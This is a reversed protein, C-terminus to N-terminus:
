LRTASREEALRHLYRVFFFLPVAFVATYLALPFDFRLLVRASGPIGHIAFRFLLLILRCLLTTIYTGLLCVWWSPQLLNHAVLAIVVGLLTLFLMYYGMPAYGFLDCLFGCFCSFLAGPLEREQVAVTVALAIVPMPYGGGIGLLGPAAQLHFLVMAALAYSGYKLIYWRYLHM